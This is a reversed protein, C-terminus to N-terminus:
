SSLSRVVSIFLFLHAVQYAFIKIICMTIMDKVAAPSNNPLMKAMFNSNQGQM